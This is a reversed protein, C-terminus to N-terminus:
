FADSKDMQPTKSNLSNEILFNIYDSKYWENQACWVELRQKLEPAMKISINVRNTIDTVNYKGKKCKIRSRSKKM